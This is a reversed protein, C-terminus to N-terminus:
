FPKGTKAGPKGIAHNNYKNPSLFPASSFDTDAQTSLTTWLVISEDGATKQKRPDQTDGGTIDPSAQGCSSKPTTFGPM